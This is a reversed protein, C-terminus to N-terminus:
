VKVKSIVLKEIEGLSVKIDYKYIEVKDIDKLRALISDNYDPALTMIRIEDKSINRTESIVQPYHLAQWIISKDNDVKLEIILTKGEKDEALIDIFGGPVSIQRGKYVLGEEILELNDVIYDELKREDIFQTTTSSMKESDLISLLEEEIIRKYPNHGTSKKFKSDYNPKPSLKFYENLKLLRNYQIYKKYYISKRFKSALKYGELYVEKEVDKIIIDGEFNARFELNELFSKGVAEMDYKYDDYIFISKNFIDVNLEKFIFDILESESVKKKNFFLGARVYMYNYLLNMSTNNEKIGYLNYLNELLLSDLEYNDGDPYHSLDVKEKIINM